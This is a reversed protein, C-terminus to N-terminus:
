TKPFISFDSMGQKTKGFGGGRYKYNNVMYNQVFNSPFTKGLEYYALIADASSQNMMASLVFISPDVVDDDTRTCHQCRTHLIVHHQYGLVVL